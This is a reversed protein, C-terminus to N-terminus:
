RVGGFLEPMIDTATVGPNHSARSRDTRLAFALDGNRAAYLVREAEEQDVAITLITRPVEETTETGADRTTRSSVSTDGVGIVQVKPLLIRTYPALPRSSGDPLYVEPDGSAFVAVWSGPEVFGAVRAPDTLEVSVALQGDPIGLTVLSGADGFQEAVVQQGPYVTGLATLGAISTASRVAGAVLDDRAVERKELKDAALADDVDEGPEITATATLVTVRDQGETARAEVGQVYTIVMGTGLASVALAVLLIIPRRAM